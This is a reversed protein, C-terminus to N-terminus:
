VLVAADVFEKYLVNKVNEYRGIDLNLRLKTILEERM